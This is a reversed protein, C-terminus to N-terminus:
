RPHSSGDNAMKRATIEMEGTPMWISIKEWCPTKILGKGASEPKGTYQSLRRGINAISFRVRNSRIKLVKYGYDQLLRTITQPSFYWLHERLLMPWHTRMGSAILSDINPLNLYLHGGPALWQTLRELAERPHDVHELVDWLTIVDFPLDTLEATEITNTFFRGAPVRQRAIAIAWEAPDIGTVHWGIKTAEAAFLGTSCGVDLLRGSQKIDESIANVRRKFIVQRNETEHEYVPDQLNAYIRLRTQIDDRHLSRVLGCTHCKVIEFHGSQTRSSSYCDQPSVREIGSTAPFLNTYATEGCLECAPIELAV